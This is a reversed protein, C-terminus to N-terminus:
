LRLWHPLCAGHGDKQGTEEETAFHCLTVGGCGM